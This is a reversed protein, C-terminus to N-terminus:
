VFAALRWRTLRKVSGDEANMLWIASKFLYSEGEFAKVIKLRQFAVSAGDPAMVPDGANLFARPFVRVDSGDGRVTGVVPWGSGFRGSPTSEGGPASFALVEGDASWSLSDGILAGPGGFLRRPDEGLPGTTIVESSEDEGGPGDSFVSIALRPGEPMAAGAHVASGLLAAVLVPVVGWRNM